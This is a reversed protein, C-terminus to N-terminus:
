AVYVEIHSVLGSRTAVALDNSILGGSIEIAKDGRPQVVMKEIGVTWTNKGNPNHYVVKTTGLFTFQIKGEEDFLWHPLAPKFTLTLGNADTNFPQSGIMILFFQSLWEATSGSLRALFGMGHIKDDPHASSVIFSSAELPSKGYVAPDMFVTLGTKAEMWYEEFLEARLMELYFKYSMHLWISERELWGPPFAMMRGISMPQDKLPACIKYMALEPDYLESARVKKYLARQAEVGGELVKMSRMPGELFLPLMNPKFSTVKIIPNGAGDALPTLLTYTPEWTFYTPSVGGNL